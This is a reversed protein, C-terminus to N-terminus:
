SAPKEHVFRVFSSMWERVLSHSNGRSILLQPRILPYLGGRISESTPLQGDVRLVKVGQARAEELRVIGYGVSGEIRKITRLIKDKSVRLTFAKEQGKFNKGFLHEVFISHIAASRERTLPVVGKKEGGVESWNVIKGLYVKRIEELALNNVTNGPYTLLIVADQGFPELNLGIRESVSITRAVLGIAIEGGRVANIAYNSGGGRIEIETDPHDKRFRDSFKEALPALSQAGAIIIKQRQRQAELPTTHLFLLLLPISVLLSSTMFTTGPYPLVYITSMSDSDLFALPSTALSDGQGGLHRWNIM